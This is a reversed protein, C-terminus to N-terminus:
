SRSLSPDPPATGIRVGGRAEQALEALETLETLRLHYTAVWLVFEQTGKPYPNAVERVAGSAALGAAQEAERRVARAREPGMGTTPADDADLQQPRSEYGALLYRRQRARREASRHMANWVQAVVTVVVTLIVLWILADSSSMRCTFWSHGVVQQKLLTRIHVCTVFEALLLLANRSYERPM